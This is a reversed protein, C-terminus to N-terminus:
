KAKPTFFKCYANPAIPGKVLKCTGASKKPNSKAAIFLACGSCEKHGNPHTVYAAAKKDMTPAADAEARLAAFAGIAIPALLLKALMRSRPITKDDDNM